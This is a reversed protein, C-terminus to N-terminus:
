QEIAPEPAEYNYIIEGSDSEFVFQINKQLYFESWDIKLQDCKSLSDLKLNNASKLIQGLRVGAQYANSSDAVQVVKYNHFHFGLRYSYDLVSNEYPKIYFDDKVLDLVVVAKALIKPGLISKKNPADYTDVLLNEFSTEPINLKPLRLRYNVTDRQKGFVGIGQSMTLTDRVSDHSLTSDKIMNFFSNKDLRLLDNIAGTDFLADVTESSDSYTIPIYPRKNGDYFSIKLPRGFDEDLYSIDSAVTLEKQALDIKVVKGKFYELGLLGDVEIGCPIFNQHTTIIAVEINQSVLSALKLESLIVNTVISSNGYFDMGYNSSSPKINLKEKLKPSIVTGAGTDFFFTYTEGEIEVDFLISNRIVEFPIVVPVNRVYKSYFFACLALLVTVVFLRKIM